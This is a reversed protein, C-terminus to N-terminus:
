VKHERHDRASKKALLLARIINLTEDYPVSPRRTEVMSVFDALMNGYFGQADRVPIRLHGKSGYVTVELTYAMGKNYVILVGQRGDRFRVHVVDKGRKGVNRVSRVRAGMVALMLTMSHIGYFFLDNTGAACCTVLEGVQDTIAKMDAIESSYRLASTSMIPTRHKRALRVIGQAEEWRPSLPKDIFAPVGAKIFLPAHRQHTMKLNDILLVGDVKGIVDAPTSVVHEIGAAAALAKTAEENQGWIHTIAARDSLVTRYLPWNQKRFEDENVRNIFGAFARGHYADTGDIMALRIM